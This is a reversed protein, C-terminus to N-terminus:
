WVTIWKKIQWGWILNLSIVHFMHSINNNDWTKQWYIWNLFLKKGNICSMSMFTYFGMLQREACTPSMPSFAGSLCLFGGSSTTQRWHVKCSLQIFSIFWMLPSRRGSLSINRGWHIGFENHGWTNDSMNPKTVSTHGNPSIHYLFVHPASECSLFPCM